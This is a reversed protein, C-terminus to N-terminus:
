GEYRHFETITLYYGDPDRISFEMKTSNPNLHIDQEIIGGTKEVNQRIANMNETRFYLIMGNSPTIGPDAMTPHGHEGWKHLCILIEANESILVDFERGGHKSRCGFISRYWKSSVEVNKVAIIPDIKTM